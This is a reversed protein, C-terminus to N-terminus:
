LEERLNIKLDDIDFYSKADVNHALVKIKVGPNGTILPTIKISSNINTWENPAKIFSKVGCGQWLLLSDGTFASVILECNNNLDGTRVWADVDLTLNSGILSDPILYVYSFGFNVGSDARSIAKGSHADNRFVYSGTNTVGNDFDFSLQYSFTASTEDQQVCSALLLILSLLTFLQKM